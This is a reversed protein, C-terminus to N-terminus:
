SPLFVSITFFVLLFSHFMHHWDTHSIMLLINTKKEKKFVQLNNKQLPAIPTQNTKTLIYCIWKMHIYITEKQNLYFCTGTSNQIIRIALCQQFDPDQIFIITSSAPKILLTFLSLAYTLLVRIEILLNELSMLKSYKMHLMYMNISKIFASCTYSFVTQCLRLLVNM